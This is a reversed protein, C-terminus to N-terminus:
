RFPTIFLNIPQNTLQNILYTKDGVSQKEGFNKGRVPLFKTGQKYPRPSFVLVGIKADLNIALAIFLVKLVNL